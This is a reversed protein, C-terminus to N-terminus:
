WGELRQRVEGDADWTQAEHEYSAALDLLLRAAMPHREDLARAWGKYRAALDREQDGGKGRWTAGRTNRHGLAIHSLLLPTGIKELADRVSSHPWISDIPDPACRGLLQGVMSEAIESRACAKALERTTECWTVLARDDITGDDDSGPTRSMNSLVDYALRALTAENGENPARLHPPDEGDDRRKFAFALLQVFLESDTALVNELNRIGHETHSSLVEAYAFELMALDYRTVDARETLTKFADSIAHSDIRNDRDDETGGRAISELLEILVQSSIKNIEHKVAEFATSPRDVDLLRGVVHELDNSGIDFLVDGPVASWYARSKKGDLEGVLNWTVPEFPAAILIRLCQEWPQKGNSMNDLYEQLLAVRSDLRLGRLVGGLFLGLNREVEGVNAKNKVVEHVIKRQDADKIPAQAFTWGVIGPVEARRCLEAIGDFGRESWIEHLAASRLSQVWKDRARFDLEDDELEDASYEVYGKAFLWNHKALLDAPELRLMTKRAIDRTAFDLRHARGRKTLLSTRIKERLEAKQWDDPDSDIWRDVADWVSRAMPEPLGALCDLLDGLKNADPDEWEIALDFAANAFKHVEGRTAVEGHGIADERWTPRHSYHGIKSHPSFQDVCLQWAVDPARSTLRKLLAIRKPIPATTQPMWARFIAALSEAPKNVWNDDLPIKALEGLVDVVRGLTGPNWALGELAWLLETRAPSAGFGRSVPQMLALLTPNPQALDEELMDLFVDPAAEAYSMLFAKQSLWKEENFPTLLNRVFAGVMGNLDGNIHRFVSNGHVSLWVLTGAIGMQLASSHRRSKEYIAAAWRKEEPLDLSPDREGLVADAVTFFHELDLRTVRQSVAYFIDVQSLVGRHNGVAWVPSPTMALLDGFYVQVDADDVGAMTAIASMDAESDETWARVLAFPILRRTAEKDSAWPPVEIAPVQSLRRRLVTLSRGAEEVLREIQDKGGDLRMPELATRFADPPVLGFRIENRDDDGSRRPLNRNTILITKRGSQVGVARQAEETDLVTVIDSQEVAVRSLLEQSSIVIVKEMCGANTHAFLCYLGALAEERSDATVVLPDADSANLWQNLRPSFVQVAWSFLTDILRPKCVNAWEAWCRELSRVNQIDDNLLETLWVQAPISTEIWQELDSADYARVDRWKRDSRKDDVWKVKGPWTRPSVFVFTMDRRVTEPVAETRAIYDSEAKRKPDQNVGFEWGSAGVPIWPTAQDAVVLGDWGHRQANDFANFDVRSMETGTSVILKRLLAPLHDRTSIMDAWAEFQRARIQFLAPIHVRARSKARGVTGQAHDFVGQMRLLQEKDADFTEALRGAMAESLSAKGNLVNSLAVRGVGLLKAAKTVTMGNPLVHHRIYHGPHETSPTDM